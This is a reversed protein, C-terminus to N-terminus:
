ELGKEEMYKKAYKCTICKPEEKRFVVIGCDECEHFGQNPYLFNWEEISRM